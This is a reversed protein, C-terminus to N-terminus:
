ARPAVTDEFNKRETYKNIIGCRELERKIVAILVHRCVRYQVDLAQDRIEKQLKLEDWRLLRMKNLNEQRSAWEKNILEQITPLKFTGDENLVFDTPLYGEMFKQVESDFFDLDVEDKRIYPLEDVLRYFETVLRDQHILEKQVDLPLKNIEEKSM